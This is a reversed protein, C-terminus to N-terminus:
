RTVQRQLERRFIERDVLSLAEGRTDAREARILEWLQRGYPWYSEALGTEDDYHVLLEELQRIGSTIIEMTPGLGGENAVREKRKERYARLEQRDIKLLAILLLALFFILLLSFMNTSFKPSIWRMRPPLGITLAFPLLWFATPFICKELLVSMRENRLASVIYERLSIWSWLKKWAMRLRYRWVPLSTADMYEQLAQLYDVHTQHLDALRCADAFDQLDQNMRGDDEPLTFFDPDTCTMGIAEGTDRIHEEVMRDVVATPRFSMTM